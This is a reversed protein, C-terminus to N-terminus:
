RVHHLFPSVILAVGVRQSVDVHASSIDIFSMMEFIIPDNWNSLLYFSSNCLKFVGSGDTISFSQANKDEVQYEYSNTLVQFEFVWRHVLFANGVVMSLRSSSATNISWGDSLPNLMTATSLHWKTIIQSVKPCISRGFYSCCKLSSRSSMGETCHSLCGDHSRRNSDREWHSRYTYFSTRNVSKHPPGPALCACFSWSDMAWRQWRGLWISCGCCCCSPRIQQDDSLLCFRSCLGLVFKQHAPTSVQIFDAYPQRVNGKFGFGFLADVIINFSDSLRSDLSNSGTRDCCFIM